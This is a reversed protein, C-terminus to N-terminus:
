AAIAEARSRATDDPTEGAVEEAAVNLSASAVRESRCRQQGAISEATMDSLAVAQARIVSLSSQANSSSAIAMATEPDTAAPAAVSEIALEKAEDAQETSSSAM